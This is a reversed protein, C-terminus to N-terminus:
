SMLLHQNEIGVDMLQDPIAFHQYEIKGKSKM